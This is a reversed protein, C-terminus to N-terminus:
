GQTKYETWRATPLKLPVGDVTVHPSRVILDMHRPSSREGGFHENGGVAVHITGASKEYLTGIQWPPAWPNTGVGFECLPEIGCGLEEELAHDRLGHEDRIERLIGDELRAWRPAGVHRFAVVGEASDEVVAVYVEGGPLYVARELHSLACDEAHWPRHDVRFCLDTGEPCTIAVQVSGDLAAKLEANIRQLESYDLEMARRYIQRMMDPNLDVERDKRAGRPWDIFIIRVGEALLAERREMAELEILHEGDFHETWPRTGCAVILPAAEPAGRPLWLDAAEVTSLSRALSPDQSVVTVRHGLSELAAALEVAPLPSTEPWIVMAEGPPHDNLAARMVTRMDFSRNPRLAVDM